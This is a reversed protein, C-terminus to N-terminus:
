GGKFYTEEDYDELEDLRLGLFETKNTFIKEKFDDLAKYVGNIIHETKVDRGGLGVIFGKINPRNKLGYLAAKLEYSLVGEYGYGIDRDFIIINEKDKFFERLEEAPFPRFLKLSMLGVKLGESRLKELAVRSQSAVSGMGFIITEADDAQIAKYIGNGYSRGFKKSFDDHVERIISISNEIAKQLAYRYEFYGPAVGEDRKVIHPTTVPDIGKVTSIDSLNIHHKLPPIFTDIKEQSELKVPMATHSLIYGDYACVIPLLVRSDEAIRFAQLNSDYIEQNNECFLQIWGVDRITVFDQHDTWVSWPAGLSRTALNLVIPLRNGSAWPLMEYM